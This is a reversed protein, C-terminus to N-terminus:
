NTNYETICMRCVAIVTPGSGCLQVLEAWFHIVKVCQLIQKSVYFKLM